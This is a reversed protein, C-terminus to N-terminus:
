FLFYCIFRDILRVDGFLSGFMKWYKSSQRKEDLKEVNATISFLLSKRLILVSASASKANLTVQCIRSNRRGSGAHQEVNLRFLKAVSSPEDFFGDIFVTVLSPDLGQVRRLSFLMRLLYSPRNGAMIAMPLQLRSGDQFAPPNFDLSVPNDGVISYRFINSLAM